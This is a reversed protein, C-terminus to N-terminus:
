GWVIHIVIHTYNNRSQVTIPAGLRDLERRTVLSRTLLVTLSQSINRFFVNPCKCAICNKKYITFIHHTRQKIKWM